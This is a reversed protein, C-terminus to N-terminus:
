SNHFLEDEERNLTKNQPASVETEKDLTVELFVRM